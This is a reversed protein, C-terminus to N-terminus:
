EEEVIITGLAPVIIPQYDSDSYSSNGNFFETANSFLSSGDELGSDGDSESTVDKVPRPPPLLDYHPDQCFRPADAINNSVTDLSSGMSASDKTVPKFTVEKTLKKTSACYLVMIESGIFQDARDSSNLLPKNDEDSSYNKSNSSATVPTIASSSNQEHKLVQSNTTSSLIPVSISIEQRNGASNMYKKYLTTALVACSGLAVAGLAIICGERIFDGSDNNEDTNIDENVATAALETINKVIFMRCEHAVRALTYNSNGKLVAQIEHESSCQPDFMVSTFGDSTISYDRGPHGKYVLTYINDGIKKFMGKLSLTMEDYSQWTFVDCIKRPKKACEKVSFCSNGIFENNGTDWMYQIKGIQTNLFNGCDKTKNFTIRALTQLDIKIGM